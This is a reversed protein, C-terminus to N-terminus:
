LRDSINLMCDEMRKFHNLMVVEIEHDDSKNKSSLKTKAKMLEYRANSLKARYKIKVLFDKDKVKKLKWNLYIIRASSNRITVM